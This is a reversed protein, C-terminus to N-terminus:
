RRAKKTKKKTRLARQKAGHTRPVTKKPQGKRTHKKHSNMMHEVIRLAAYRLNM